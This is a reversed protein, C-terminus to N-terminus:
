LVLAHMTKVPANIGVGMGSGPNEEAVVYDM